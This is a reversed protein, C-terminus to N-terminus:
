SGDDWLAASSSGLDTYRDTEDCRRGTIESTIRINAWGEVAIWRVRLRPHNALALVEAVTPISGAFSCWDIDAPEEPHTGDAGHAFRFALAAHGPKADISPLGGEAREQNIADALATAPDRLDDRVTRCVRRVFATTIKM